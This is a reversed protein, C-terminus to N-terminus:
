PSTHKSRNNAEKTSILNSTKDNKAELRKQREDPTEMNKRLRTEECLNLAKECAAKIKDVPGQCTLERWESTDQDPYERARGARLPRTTCKVDYSTWLSEQQVTTLEGGDKLIVPQCCVHLEVEMALGGLRSQACSSSLSSYMAVLSELTVVLSHWWSPTFWWTAQIM